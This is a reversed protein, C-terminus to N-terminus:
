FINFNTNNPVFELAQFPILSICTTGDANQGGTFCAIINVSARNKLKYISTNGVATPLVLTGASTFEFYYTTGAVSAANVTGSAGNCFVTSGGGGGGGGSITGLVCLNNVYFTCDASANLGCGFAGSYCGSVTNCAGGLVASYIGSISNSQGGGIFGHCTTISNSSGGVISSYAYSYAGLGANISNAIGGGIFSAGGSSISNQCGGVISSLYALYLSISAGSGIFSYDSLGSISSVFGNVIASNSSAAISVSVGTGIFGYPANATGGNGNVITTYYNAVSPNSINNGDGGLIANYYVQPHTVIGNSGVTPLVSNADKRCYVPSVGGGSITGL